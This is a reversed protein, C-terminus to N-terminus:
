QDKFVKIAPLIVFLAAPLIVDGSVREWQEGVVSGVAYATAWGIGAGVALIALMILGELYTWRRVLAYALVGGLALPLAFHMTRVWVYKKLGGPAERARQDMELIFGEYHGVAWGNVAGALVGVGVAILLATLITRLVSPHEDPM